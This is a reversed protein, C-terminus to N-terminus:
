GEVLYREVAARDVEVGLGPAQPVAIMGDVIELPEQLLDAALRHYDSENPASFAPTSAAVQLMAATGIGLTPPSALSAQIGGALAVAAAQRSRLLGGVHQLDVVVNEAAGCRILALVDAPSHIPRRVALPVSTQRRLSAVQDLHQNELPDIVAKLAYSELEACLQRASDMDYGAAADLAFQVRDLSSQGIAEVAALDDELRAGSTIVQDRFGQEALARATQAVRGPPGEPLHVALPIRGRYMGGFLHCLPQRAAKGVLDWCAMELASRLSTDDLGELELLEEIDFVSHGALISLLIERRRPLGSPRWDLRAEGWGELRSDSALRVLVSRVPEPQGDCPVAVSYFELDNIIM